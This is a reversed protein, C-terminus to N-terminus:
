EEELWDQYTRIIMHKSRAKGKIVNFTPITEQRVIDLIKINEGLNAADVMWTRFDNMKSRTFLNVFDELWLRTIEHFKDRYTSRLQSFFENFTNTSDYIERINETWPISHLYFSPIKYFSIDKTESFTKIFDEYEKQIEPEELYANLQQEYWTKGHLAIYYHSLSVDVSDCYFHSEDDLVFKQVHPFIKKVLYLATRIMYKTGEDKDLAEDFSCKEHYSLVPIQAITPDIQFRPEIVIDKDYVKINVCGQLKGCFSIAYKFPNNDHDYDTKITLYFHYKPTKVLYYSTDEM